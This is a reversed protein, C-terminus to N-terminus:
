KRADGDFNAIFSDGPNVYYAATGSSVSVSLACVHFFFSSLWSDMLRHHQKM